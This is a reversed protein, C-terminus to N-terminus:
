KINVGRSVLYEVCDEEIIRSGYVDIEYPASAILSMDALNAASLNAANISCNILISKSFDAGILRSCDFRCEKFRCGAFVAGVLTCSSFDCGRVAGRRFDCGNDFERGYFNRDGREYLVAFQNYSMRNEFMNIGDSISEVHQKWEDSM